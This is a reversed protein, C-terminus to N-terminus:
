TYLVALASKKLLSVLRKGARTAHLLGPDVVRRAGAGYDTTAAEGGRFREAYGVIVSEDILRFRKYDAVVRDAFLLGRGRIM